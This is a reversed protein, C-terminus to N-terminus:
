EEQLKYVINDVLDNHSFSKYSKDYIITWNMKALGSDDFAGTTGSVFAYPCSEKKVVVGEGYYKNHKYMKVTDGIYLMCGNADIIKTPKGIIGYDDSIHKGILHPVFKKNEKKEPTANFLRELALTAGVAFDFTDEPSCKAIGVKNTNNDRAIVKNGRVFISVDGIGKCDQGSKSKSQNSKPTNKNFIDRAYQITNYGTCLMSFYILKTDTDIVITETFDPIWNTARTGSKWMYGNQDLIGLLEKMESKSNVRFSIEKEFIGM